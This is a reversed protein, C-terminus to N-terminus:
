NKKKEEVGLIRKKMTKQLKPIIHKPTSKIKNKQKDQKM